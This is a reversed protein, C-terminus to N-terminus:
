RSFLKLYEEGTMWTPKVGEKKPYRLLALVLPCKEIIWPHHVSAIFALDQGNSHSFMKSMQTATKLDLGMDPEDLLITFKKTPDKKRIEDVHLQLTRNFQFLHAQGKSILRMQLAEMMSLGSGEEDGAYAFHRASDGESNFLFDIELPREVTVWEPYPKDKNWLFTPNMISGVRFALLNLLTSKGTGNEGVLLFRKREPIEIM